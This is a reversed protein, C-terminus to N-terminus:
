FFFNLASKMADNCIILISMAIYHFGFVKIM